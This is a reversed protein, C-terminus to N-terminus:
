SGVQHGLQGDEAGHGAARPPQQLQEGLALRAGFAPEFFEALRVRRRLSPRPTM